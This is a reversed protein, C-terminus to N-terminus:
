KKRLVMLGDRVPFLVNEVRPDQHVQTNFNIIAQTRKDIPPESHVVRGKWLVNDIIIFGGPRLRELALDYYLANNRKDADIFVLDFIDHIQPIIEAARGIHYKIQHARSSQALYQRVVPALDANKDITHLVGTPSLGEALCLTAYGTYTGVELIKDPRIMHSFTALIRGQLHGSLMQPLPVNAYTEAEIRSLLASAATTHAEAYTQMRHEIHDM